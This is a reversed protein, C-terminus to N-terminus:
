LCCAGKFPAVELGLTDGFSRLAAKTSNYAASFPLPMVGMLSGNNIVCRKGSAILLPLFEQMMCVPSFVNIEYLARIVAIDM